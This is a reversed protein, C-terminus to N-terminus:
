AFHQRLNSGNARAQATDLRRYSYHSATRSGWWVNTNMVIGVRSSQRGVWSRNDIVIGVHAPYEKQDGNKVQYPVQGAAFYIVDGPSPTQALVFDSSSAIAASSLYGYEPFVQQLALCVFYSCDLATESKGGLKYSSDKLKLALAKAAAVLADRKCSSTTVQADMSHGRTQTSPLVDGAYLRRYLSAVRFVHVRLGGRTQGAFASQKAHLGLHPGAALRFARRNICKQSSRASRSEFAHEFDKRHCGEFSPHARLAWVDSDSQTGYPGRREQNM